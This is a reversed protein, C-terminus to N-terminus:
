SWLMALVLGAQGLHYTILGWVHRAPIEHGFENQAWLVDSLFFLTAGIIAAARGAPPWAPRFLTAWASFLMLSLFIAYVLVAIRKRPAIGPLLQRYLLWGLAFLPLLLSLSALPPLTPQLGIIYCGHALLFASMGPIFFRAHSIMLFVDGILSCALGLMIFRVLRANHAGAQALTWGSLLLLVMTLPKFIFIGSRWARAVAFWDAAACLLAGGFWFWGPSGNLLM